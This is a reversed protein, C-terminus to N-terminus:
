ETREWLKQLLDGVAEDRSAGDGRLGSEEHGDLWAQADFRKTPIPKLWYDTKIVVGNWTM